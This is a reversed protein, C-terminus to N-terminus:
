WSGTSRDCFLTDLARTDNEHPKWNWNSKNGPLPRLTASMGQPLSQLAVRFQNLYHLLNVFTLCTTKKPNPLVIERRRITSESVGTM